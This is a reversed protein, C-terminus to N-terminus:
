EADPAPEEGEAALQRLIEAADAAQRSPVQLIVPGTVPNFGSGFRGLAFLDQLADAKKLYPIGSDILLSEAVAVIGADGTELVTVLAAAADEGHDVPAPPTAVLAVGCDACELFGDRYEGGCEPCFM